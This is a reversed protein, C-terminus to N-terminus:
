RRSVADDSPAHGLRVDFTHLRSLPDELFHVQLAHRGPSVRRLNLVLPIGVTEGPNMTLPLRPVVTRDAHLQAGNVRVVPWFTLPVDAQNTITLTVQQDSTFYSLGFDTKREVFSWNRPGDLEVVVPLAPPIDNADTSAVVKVAGKDPLNVAVACGWHDGADILQVLRGPAVTPRRDGRKALRLYVQADDFAQNLANQVTVGIRSASGDNPADYFARLRGTPISHQIGEPGTDSPYAYAIQDGSVEIVRYHSFGTARDRLSTSSQHTRIVHLGELHRLKDQYEHYNWDVSGGVIYMRIRHDDLFQQIDGREKWIDILTLEDSNAVLFNFARHRNRKLDTDIWQLQSYDQDIPHGAHDLLLVGHYSGYDITGIPKSAVFDSFSAEHDHAGCLLFVPANFRAFFELVSLWSAADDRARAWETYDGTAIIFEPALLNIESPLMDDFEPATLDGINMSSLQVIRFRDKFRDVVKVSRRAAHRAQRSRVELDYLGPATDGPVMLVLSCYEDNLYSPPTTPKLPIRVSPELARRLSFGVDGSMESTLRMVFYFTEGATIFIPRGQSPERIVASPPRSSAPAAPAQILARDASQALEAADVPTPAADDAVAVAVGPRQADTGSSQRASERDQAVLPAVLALLIVSGIRSVHRPDM